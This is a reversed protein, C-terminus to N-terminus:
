SRGESHRCTMKAEHALPLNGDRYGIYSCKNVNFLTSLESDLLNYLVEDGLMDVSNQGHAAGNRCDPEVGFSHLFAM